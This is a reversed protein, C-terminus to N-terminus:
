QAFIPAAGQVPKWKILGQEIKEIIWLGMGKAWREPIAYTPLTELNKGPILCIEHNIKRRCVLREPIVELFVEGHQDIVEETTIVGARINERTPTSNVRICFKPLDIALWRCEIIAGQQKLFPMEIVTDYKALNGVLM